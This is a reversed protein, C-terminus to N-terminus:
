EQLEEAKPFFVLKTVELMADLMPKSEDGGKLFQILRATSHTRAQVMENLKAEDYDDSIWGTRAIYFFRFM